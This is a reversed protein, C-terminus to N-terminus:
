GYPGFRSLCMSLRDFEGEFALSTDSASITVIKGRKALANRSEENVAWGSARAVLRM